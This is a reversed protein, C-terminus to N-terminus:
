IRATAIGLAQRFSPETVQKWWRPAQQLVHAQEKELQHVLEAVVDQRDLHHEHLWHIVVHIDQVRGSEDQVGALRAILLASTEGLATRFPDLSYRLDKCRKRFRHVIFPPTEETLGEFARIAGHREWLASPLVHYVKFPNGPKEPYLRFTSINKKFQQSLQGFHTAHLYTEFVRIAEERAKRIHVILPQIDESYHAELEDQVIDLDRIYGAQRYVEKLWKQYTRINKPLLHQFLKLIVRMRRITVRFRHIGAPHHTDLFFTLAEYLITLYAEMLTRLARDIPLDTAVEPRSAERMRQITQEISSPPSSM